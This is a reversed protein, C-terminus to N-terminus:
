ILFAVGSELDEYSIGAVDMCEGWGTQAIAEEDPRLPPQIFEIGPFHQRVQDQDLKDGYLIIGVDAWRSCVDTLIAADIGDAPLIMFIPVGQAVLEKTKAQVATEPALRNHCVEKALSSRIHDLISTGTGGARDSIDVIKLKAKSRTCYARYLYMRESLTWSRRWAIVKSQPAVRPSLVTAVRIAGEPSVWCFPAVLNIVEPVSTNPNNMATKMTEVGALLKQFRAPGPPADFDLIRRALATARDRKAGTPMAPLEYDDAITTLAEESPTGLNFKNILREETEHRAAFRSRVTELVQLVKEAENDFSAITANEPWGPLTVKTQVEAIQLAGMERILVEETVEPCWVPILTFQGGSHKWRQRLMAAEYAVYRSKTAAPSLVLIAADCRWVWEDIAPRWANSTTLDQDWLLEFKKPNLRAAIAKCLTMTRSEQKASHSIFVRPKYLADAMRSEGFRSM